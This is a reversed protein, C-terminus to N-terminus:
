RDGLVAEDSIEMADGKDPRVPGDIPEATGGEVRRADEARQQVGPFAAEKCELGANGGPCSLEVKGVRIHEDRSEEGIVSHALNLVEHGYPVRRRTAPLTQDAPNLADPARHRETDAGGRPEVVARVAMVDGRHSISHEESRGIKREIETRGLGHRDVLAVCDRLEGQLLAPYGDEGQLLDARRGLESDPLLVLREVLQHRRHAEPPAPEGGRAIPPPPPFDDM